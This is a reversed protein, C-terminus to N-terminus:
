EDRKSKVAIEVRTVRRDLSVLENRLDHEIGSLTSNMTDFKTDLMSSLRDLRTHVRSGIWGLVGILVILIGGISATLLSIIQTSDM